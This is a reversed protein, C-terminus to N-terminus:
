VVKSLTSESSHGHNVNTEGVLRTMALSGLVNETDSKTRWLEGLDYHDNQILESREMRFSVAVITVAATAV